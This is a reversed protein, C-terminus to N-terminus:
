LRSQAMPHAVLAARRAGRSSRHMAASAAAVTSATGTARRKLLATLAPLNACVILICCENQSLLVVYVVDAFWRATNVERGYIRHLVVKKWLRLATVATGVSGM